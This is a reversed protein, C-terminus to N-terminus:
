RRLSRRGGRVPNWNKRSKGQWLNTRETLVARAKAEGSKFTNRWTRNKQKITNLINRAIPNRPEKTRILGNKTLISNSMVNNISEYMVGKANVFNAESNPDISNGSHANVELRSPNTDIMYKKICSYLYKNCKILNSRILAPPHTTDGFARCMMALFSKMINSVTVENTSTIKLYYELLLYSLADPVSEFLFGNHESRVTKGSSDVNTIDDWTGKRPKFTGTLDFRVVSLLSDLDAKQQPSASKSFYDQVALHGTEHGEVYLLSCMYTKEILEINSVIDRSFNMDVIKGFLLLVIENVVKGTGDSSWRSWNFRPNTYDGIDLWKLNIETPMMIKLMFLPNVNRYASNKGITYSPNYLSSEGSQCDGIVNYCTANGILSAFNDAVFSARGQFASSMFKKFHDNQIPNYAIGYLFSFCKVFARIYIKFLTDSHNKIILYNLTNLIILGRPNEYNQANDSFKTLDNVTRFLDTTEDFKQSIEDAISLKTSNKVDFYDVTEVFFPEPIKKPNTLYQVNRLKIAGNYEIIAKDIANRYNKIEKSTAAKEGRKGCTVNFLDYVPGKDGDIIVKPPNPNRFCRTGPKRKDYKTKPDIITELCYGLPECHGVGAGHAGEPEDLWYRWDPGLRSANPPAVSPCDNYLVTLSNIGDSTVEEDFNEKDFYM